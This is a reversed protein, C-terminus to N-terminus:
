DSIVGVTVNNTNLIGYFGLNHDDRMPREGFLVEKVPTNLKNQIMSKLQRITTNIPMNNQISSLKVQITTPSYVAHLTSHQQINYSALDRGDELRKGSFVLGLFHPPMRLKQFIKKKVAEITDSQEVNLTITKGSWTKILLQIRPALMLFESGEKIDYFALTKFDELNKGEHILHQDSLSEGLISGVITKVDNITFLTKAEIRISDSRKPIKIWISIMDRPNFVVHFTAEKKINLSELTTDDDLLKGEYVLTYLDMEILEKLHIVMKIRRVTEEPKAEVVITEPNSPMKVNIKLGVFNDVVLHLVSDRQIGYDDIRHSNRLLDGNFFIEQLNEPIGFRWHVQSKLDKVTQSRKVKLNMTKRVKLYVNFQLLLM